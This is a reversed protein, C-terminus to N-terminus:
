IGEQIARRYLVFEGNNKSVVGDLLYLTHAIDSKDLNTDDMIDGVSMWAVSSLTNYVTEKMEDSIGYHEATLRRLVKDAEEPTGPFRVYSRGISSDRDKELPLHEYMCIISSIQRVTMNTDYALTPVANWEGPSELIIKLVKYVKTNMNM